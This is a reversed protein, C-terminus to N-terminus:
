PAAPETATTPAVATVKSGAKLRFQGEVVVREGAKLGEAIQIRSDDVEIGTRVPRIAVTDDPQMVYVYENDTGRMVSQIPVVVGRDITRLRLRVNVFQGPWLADDQNEFVARARFTGSDASIQNDVVELRGDVTLAHSDNRDLAAVPVAGARQAERVDQLQREPLNFLVHVPRVQTLTVLATGEGVVNGVDVNRIGAIGSIPATIRTYQLQVEAARMAAENAAVAGEYQSIQNRQVDLDSRSVYQSYEPTSSRRFNARATALLAQNQRRAAAAEDYRAQASRPDIRALLDGKAVEQGERFDISLLRGGVQASVVVTNLASVTGLATLNVPVSRSEAEIVTVPVPTDGEDAAETAAEGQGRGAAALTVAVVAM